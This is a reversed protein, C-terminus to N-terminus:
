ACSNNLLSFRLCPILKFLFFQRFQSLSFEGIFFLQDYHFVDRISFYVKVSAVRLTKGALNNRREYLEKPSTVTLGEIPDWTALENETLKDEDLAYWETIRPDDDCKFIMETDFGLHFSNDKPRKCADGLSSDFVVLWISYSMEYTHSMRQFMELERQTNLFSVSLPKVMRSQLYDRHDTVDTYNLAVSFVLKSSFEKTLLLILTSTELGSTSKIKKM